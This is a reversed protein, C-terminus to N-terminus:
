ESEGAPIVARVHFGDRTPSAALTGRHTKLRERLGLLGHGSGPEVRWGPLPGDDDVEVTINKGTRAIAIRVTTPGAHRLTNTLTERVVACIALQVSQAVEAYGDAETGFGNTTFQITLGNREAEKIITPLAALTDAPRLPAPEDGPSRLLALMRRLEATTTRSVHEIDLMAQQRQADADPGTLYGTSAARVTIIGLGHSSLDHLDRAIRLREQSVAREASWAALREEYDRRQGRSRQVAWVLAAIVALLGSLVCAGLVLLNDAGLVMSAVIPVPVLCAVLAWTGLLNGARAPPEVTEM